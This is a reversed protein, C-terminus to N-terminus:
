HVAFKVINSKKNTNTDFLYVDYVGPNSFISKPVIANVGDPKIVTELKQENIVLVTNKTQGSSAVWFVSDGSTQINFGVGAATETPGYKQIQLENSGCAVLFSVSLIIALFQKLFNM